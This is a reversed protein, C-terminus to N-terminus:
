IEELFKISFLIIDLVLNWKFLSHKIFKSNYIKNLSNFSRTRLITEM